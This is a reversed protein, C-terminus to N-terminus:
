APILYDPASLFALDQLNNGPIVGPVLVLTGSQERQWSSGDGKESSKLYLPQISAVRLRAGLNYPLQVSCFAGEHSQSM